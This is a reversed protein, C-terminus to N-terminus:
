WDLNIRRLFLQASAAFNMNISTLHVFDLSGEQLRSFAETANRETPTEGWNIYFFKDSNNH